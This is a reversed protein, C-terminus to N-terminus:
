KSVFCPDNDRDFSQGSTSYSNIFIIIGNSHEGTSAKPKIGECTDVLNLAQGFKAVIYGM